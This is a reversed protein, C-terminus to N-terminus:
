GNIILIVESVYGHDSIMKAVDIVRVARRVYCRYYVAKAVDIIRFHEALVCRIIMAGILKTQASAIPEGGQM